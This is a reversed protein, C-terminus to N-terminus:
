HCFMFGIYLRCGTPYILAKKHFLLSYDLKISIRVKQTICFDTGIYPAFFVYPTKNFYTSTETEWDNQNGQEIFLSRQAGGGITGGVYLWIKDWQYNYDALIGGCGYRIYSGEQLHDKESSFNSHLTTVYGEGGIRFHNWLHIRISGGIGLAIGSLHYPADINNGWVYGTHLLMGGSFGRYVGTQGTDQASASLMAFMCMALWLASHFTKMHCLYLFYNYNKRHTNINQFSRHKM